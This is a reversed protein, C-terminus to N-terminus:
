LWMWFDNRVGEFKVRCICHSPNGNADLQVNTVQATLPKQKDRQFILLGMVACCRCLDDICGYSGIPVRKKDNNYHTNNHNQKNNNICNSRDDDPIGFGYHRADQRNIDFCADVRRITGFQEEDLICDLFELVPYHYVFKTSNQLHKKQSHALNIIHCYDDVSTTIPDDV